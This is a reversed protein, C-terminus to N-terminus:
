KNKKTKDVLVKTYGIGSTTESESLESVESKANSDNFTKNKNEQMQLSSSLIQISNSTNKKPSEVLTQSL